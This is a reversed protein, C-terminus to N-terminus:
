SKRFIIKVTTGGGEKGIFTIDGGQTKIIKAAQYLGLGARDKKTTFFPEAVKHLQDEAIGVGKDAITIIAEDNSVSYKFLLKKERSDEMAEIANDIIETFAVVILLKDGNIIFEREDYECYFDVGKDQCYKNFRDKNKLILETLNLKVSGIGEYRSFERLTFLLSEMRKIEGLSRSLYEKRKEDDLTEYMHELVQLSCKMSNVANGVSHRIHSIIAGISTFRRIEALNRELQEIRTIDEMIFLYEGKKIEVGSVLFSKDWEQRISQLKGKNESCIMQKLICTECVEDKGFIAKYCKKGILDRPHSRSLEAVASNLKVLNYDEDVVYIMESLSDITKYWSKIITSLDKEPPYVEVLFINESANSIELPIIKAKIQETRGNCDIEVQRETKERLTELDIDEPIISIASYDCERFAKNEFLRRGSKDLVFFTCDLCDVIEIIEKVGLEFVLNKM